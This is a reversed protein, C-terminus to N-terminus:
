SRAIAPDGRVVLVALTGLFVYPGAAHNGTLAVALAAVGWALLVNLALVFAIALLAVLVAIVVNM